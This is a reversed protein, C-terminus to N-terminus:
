RVKITIVDDDCDKGTEIKRQLRMVKGQQIALRAIRDECEASEIGAKLNELQLTLQMQLSILMNEEELHLRLEEKLEDLDEQCPNKKKESRENDGGGRGDGVVQLHNPAFPPPLELNAGDEEEEETNVTEDADYRSANNEMEEEHERPRDLRSSSSPKAVDLGTASPVDEVSSNGCSSSQSEDLKDRFRASDGDTSHGEELYNEEDSFPGQSSYDEEGDYYDDDYDDDDDYTGNHTTTLVM